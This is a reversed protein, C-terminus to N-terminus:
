GLSRVSKPITSPGEPNSINEFRSSVRKRNHNSIKQYVDFPLHYFKDKNPIAIMHVGGEYYSVVSNSFTYQPKGEYVLHEKQCYEHKNLFPLIVDVFARIPIQVSQYVPLANSCSRHPTQLSPAGTETFMCMRTGFQVYDHAVCVDIKDKEEYDQPELEVTFRTDSFEKSIKM